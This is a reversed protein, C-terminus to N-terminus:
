KRKYVRSSYYYANSYTIGLEKQIMQALQANTCDSNAGCIALAKQKLSAGDKTKTEPRGRKVVQVVGSEVAKSAQKAEVQLEPLKKLLKQVKEQAYHMAEDTNFQDKDEVAREILAKATIRAEPFSLMDQGGLGVIVANAMSLPDTAETIMEGVAQIARTKGLSPDIDFKKLTASVDM